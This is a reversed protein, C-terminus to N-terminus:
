GDKPKGGHKSGCLSQGGTKSKRAKSGAKSLINWPDERTTQELYRELPSASAPHMHNSTNKAEGEQPRATNPAAM